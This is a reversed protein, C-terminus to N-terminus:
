RASTPCCLRRPLVHISVLWAVTRRWALRTWAPERCCAIEVPASTAEIRVWGAQMPRYPQGSVWRHSTSVMREGLWTPAEHLVATGHLLRLTIRADVPLHLTKGAEIRLREVPSHPPTSSLISSM